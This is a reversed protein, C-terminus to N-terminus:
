YSREAKIRVVHGDALLIKVHGYGTVDRVDLVLDALMVVRDPGLIELLLDLSETVLKDDASHGPKNDM